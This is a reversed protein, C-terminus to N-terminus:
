PGVGELELILASHDSLGKERVAHEYSFATLREAVSASSLAHDYRFGRETRPSIWTFDRAQDGHQRRYLDVWGAEFLAQFYRTNTFTKDSSDKFPVGCNLDGILLCDLALLSASDELLLEFLPVQAAKQPFHMPLVTLGMTQAELIHCLGSRQQVFEGADVPERSAVYLTNESASDTEAMFSHNLGAGALHENLTAASSRRIEQLVVIDPSWRALAGCIDTLRRGGGQLINWSVIKL